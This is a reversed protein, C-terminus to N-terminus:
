KDPDLSFASLRFKYAGVVGRGRLGEIMADALYQIASASSSDTVDSVIVGIEYDKNV